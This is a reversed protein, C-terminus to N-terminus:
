ESTRILRRRGAKRAGLEELEGQLRLCPHDWAHRRWVGANRSGDALLAEFRTADCAIVSPRLSVSEANSVLVDKGLVRRQLGQRLNQRAQANFHSGWLLTM